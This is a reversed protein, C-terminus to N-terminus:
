AAVARRRRQAAGILGFGAILMTWSGPEPVTTFVRIAYASTDLNRLFYTAETGSFAFADRFDLTKLGSYDIGGRQAWEAGSLVKPEAVFGIIARSFHLTGGISLDPRGQKIYQNPAFLLLYSNVELGVPLLFGEVDEPPYDATSVRRAFSLKADLAPVTSRREFMVRLDPTREIDALMTLEPGPEFMVVEAGVDAANGATVSGTVTAAPAQVCAIVAVAIVTPLRPAFIM